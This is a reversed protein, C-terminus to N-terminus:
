SGLPLCQIIQLLSTRDATSVTDRAGRVISVITKWCCCIIHWCRNQFNDFYVWFINQILYIRKRGKQQKPYKAGWLLSGIIVLFFLSLSSYKWRIHQGFLNYMLFCLQRMITFQKVRNHWSENCSEPDSGTNKKLLIKDSYNYSSLGNPLSWKERGITQTSTSRFSDRWLKTYTKDKINVLM